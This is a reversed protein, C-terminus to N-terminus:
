GAVDFSVNRSAVRIGFIYYYKMTKSTVGNADRFAMVAFPTLLHELSFIHTFM